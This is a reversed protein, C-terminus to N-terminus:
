YFHPTPPIQSNNISLRAWHLILLSLCVSQINWCWTRVPMWWRVVRPWLWWFPLLGDSLFYDMILSSIQLQYIGQNALIWCLLLDNNGNRSHFCHRSPTLNNGRTKKRLWNSPLYKTAILILAPIESQDINLTQLAYTQRIQFPQGLKIKVSGAPLNECLAKWHHVAHQLVTPPRPPHPPPTKNPWINTM